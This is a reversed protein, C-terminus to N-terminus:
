FFDECTWELDRLRRLVQVFREARENFAVDEPTRPDEIRTLRHCTTLVVVEDFDAYVRLGVNSLRVPGWDANATTQKHQAVDYLQQDRIAECQAPDGVGVCSVGGLDYGAPNRTAKAQRLRSDIRGMMQRGVMSIEDLLLLQMHELYKQLRNLEVDGQLEAFYSPRFWHILRHITTAHFGINFAASGTPAAVRAFTAPHVDAPLDARALLRLLEQLLTRM